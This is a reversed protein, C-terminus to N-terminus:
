ITDVNNTFGGFDKTVYEDGDFHDRFAVVALRLGEVKDLQGSGQLAICVDKCRAVTTDQIFV